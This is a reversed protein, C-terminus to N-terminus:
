GDDTGNKAEQNSGARKPHEVDEGSTERSHRFHPQIPRQHGIRQRTRDARRKQEAQKRRHAIRAPIGTFRERMPAAGQSRCCVPQLPQEDAYLDHQSDRQQEAGPKQQPAEVRHPAHRRSELGAAHEREADCSVPCLCCVEFREPM